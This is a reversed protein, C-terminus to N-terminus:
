GDVCGDRGRSCASETYSTMSVFGAGDNSDRDEMDDSSGTM